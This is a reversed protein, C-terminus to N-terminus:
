NFRTFSVSPVRGSGIEFYYIEELQSEVPSEEDRKHAPYSSWNGGPTIVECAILSDAEFCVPPV